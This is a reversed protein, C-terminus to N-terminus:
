AFALGLQQLVTEVLIDDGSSTTAQDGWVGGQYIVQEPQEDGSVGQGIGVDAVPQDVNVGGARVIDDGEVDQGGSSFV